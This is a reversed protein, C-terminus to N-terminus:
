KGIRYATEIKDLPITIMGNPQRVNLGDNVIYGAHLQDQILTVGVDGRRAQFRNVETLGLFNAFVDKVNECGHKRMLKAAALETTYKGFFQHLPDYGIVARISEGVTLICDTKGWEATQYAHLQQIEVLRNEWDPHRDLDSIVTTM